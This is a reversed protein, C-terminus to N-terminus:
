AALVDPSIDVKQRSLNFGIQLGISYSVNDKQDKLQTSKEQGFLPLALLSASFIVILQKMSSTKRASETLHSAASVPVSIFLRRGDLVSRWRRNLPIYREATSHITANIAKKGFGRWAIVRECASATLIPFFIQCFSHLPVIAPRVDQFAPSSKADSPM